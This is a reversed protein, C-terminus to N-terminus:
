SSVFKVHCTDKETNVSRPVSAFPASAVPCFQQWNLQMEDGSSTVSSSTVLAINRGDPNPVVPSCKDRGRILPCCTSTACLSPPVPLAQPFPATGAGRSGQHRPKWCHLWGKRQATKIEFQLYGWPPDRLFGACPRLSRVGPPQAWVPSYTPCRPPLFCPAPTSIPPSVLRQAPRGRNGDCRFGPSLSADPPSQRRVAQQDRDPAANRLRGAVSTRGPSRPVPQPARPAVAWWATTGLSRVTYSAPQGRASVRDWPWPAAPSACPNTGM